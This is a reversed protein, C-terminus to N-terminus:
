RPEGAALEIVGVKVGLTRGDGDRRERPPWPPDVTLELRHPGRPVPVIQLALESWNSDFLPVRAVPQGGLAVTVTVPRDPSAHLARLPVRVARAAGPALFTARPGSWRFRPGDRETEWAYTGGRLDDLPSRPQGVTLGRM